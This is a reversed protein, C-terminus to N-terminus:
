QYNKLSNVFDDPAKSCMEHKPRPPPENCQEIWRDVAYCKTSVESLKERFMGSTSGSSLALSRYDADTPPVVIMASQTLKDYLFATEGVYGGMRNKANFYGCVDGQDKGPKLAGFKVSDPDNLLSKLADKAEGYQCGSLALTGLCLTTIIFKRM